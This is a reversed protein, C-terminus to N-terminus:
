EEKEKKYTLVAASIGLVLSCGSVLWVAPLIDFPAKAGHEFRLTGITTPLLQLSATNMVTFVVMELTAVGSKSLKQLEKMANIGLPTAANGLGLLNASINMSIAGLAKHENKLGPFIIKLVPHLAKCLAATVGSKEAVATIGGWFCLSGLLKFTLEAAHTSEELLSASVASLNGTFIGFILASLGAFFFFKGM